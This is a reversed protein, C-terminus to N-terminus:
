GALIHKLEPICSGCNTGCQLSKGLAEVSGDGAEIRARIAQEGVQFCACVVPGSEAGGDPPEGSLLARREADDLRDREMMEILWDRGPLDGRPHLFLVGMLRGERLVAQRFHGIFPDQMELWQLTEADGPESLMAALRRRAHDPDDRGALEFLHGQPLPSYSWYFCRPDGRRVRTILFGQWRVACPSVRVRSFKSEPQGSLPDTTAQVLAGMRARASFPSSWHMPVFLEGPRQDTTLRARVVIAGHRNEVSALQGEGIRHRRADEPHLAVFPEGIHQLLRRAKGTRTMTHWQDRIRGTNMILEGARPPDEPLRATVAVFRARGDDTTFRGDGFLRQRGQPWQRTVPWRVPALADYGAEDLAALGSIDFARRGDNEFGSLAAHEAFVQAPHRWDFADPYGLRRGVQALAWWDPRAEGPADLFPRQRSICRESNTVTGNKEGWTRAPLKIDALQVTDTDAMCESVVVTPCLRLADRVLDAEPLSVVPNTSLIWLFKIRGSAVAQFLEVAKLGPQGVMNAANWFRKVRAVDDPAFDMHAALQNALGGVERGGMANPQGTISFPSAGPKGVRGTALHCNIIANCKDTGTASQNIGQSYFTVTRPREAFWNFFTEIDAEPLDCRRALSAPSGADDEAQALAEDFGRTHDGIYNRDLHGHRGLWALLGNFLLGDAGPRLPLHLDALDCTATRRPDIVVVKADPRAKKAAVMRQYLVPHTWAANSGVLVLLEASDLDEYCGPVSDGGFARKYGAVASAMCLRSNTDMHASGIFGKMLKNAVYYDETLLQGSGYCAVSDAGYQALTDRLRRTVEDLATDWDVVTGGVEPHLLRNNHDLTEHLAAGKVCLRGLNAPHAAMGTVGHGAGNVTVGCGVGCYPCTTDTTHIREAM